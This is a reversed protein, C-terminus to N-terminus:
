VSNSNSIIAFKAGKVDIHTNKSWANETKARFRELVRLLKQKGYFSQMIGTVFDSFQFKLHNPELTYTSGPGM